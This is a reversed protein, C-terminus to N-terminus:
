WAGRWMSRLYVDGLIAMLDWQWVFVAVLLMYVVLGYELVRNMRWGSRRVHLFAFLAGVHTLVIVSLLSYFVGAEDVWLDLALVCFCVVALVQALFRFCRNIPRDLRVLTVLGWQVPVFAAILSTTGARFLWRSVEWTWEVSQYSPIVEL